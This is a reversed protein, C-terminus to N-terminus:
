ATPDDGRDLSDWVQKDTVPEDAAASAAPSDYSSGLAAWRRGRVTVLAGGVSLLLGGILTAVAWGPRGSIVSGESGYVVFSVDATVGRVLARAAEVTVGIGAALLLTGVAVRGWSRTAALALVGALGVLALAQALGVQDSGRVGTTLSVITLSDPERVVVWSQRVAWLALLSGALCLLLALRLERRVSM